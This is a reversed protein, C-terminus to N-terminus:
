SQSREPPHPRERRRIRELLMVGAYLGGVITAISASIALIQLVADLMSEEKPFDMGESSARSIVSNGSAFTDIEIKLDKEIKVDKRARDSLADSQRLPRGWEGVL